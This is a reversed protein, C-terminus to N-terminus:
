NKHPESSTHPSESSVEETLAMYDGSPVSTYEWTSPTTKKEDKEARTIYELANIRVNESLTDVNRYAALLPMTEKYRRSDTAVLRGLTPIDEEYDVPWYAEWLPIM